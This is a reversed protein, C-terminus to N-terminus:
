VAFRFGAAYLPDNDDGVIVSQWASTTGQFLVSKLGTCETFAGAAIRSLSSPLSLETAARGAPCYLLTKGDATYLVGDYEMFNKNGSAVRVYALRRCGAFSAASLATVTTPIEVAGIISDKLAYPLIETVTDGTPSKPPILVCSAVCTGLGAVACTGDGNSRFRLGESYTPLVTVSGQVPKDAETGEGGSPPQEGEAKPAEDVPPTQPEEAAGSAGLAACGCIIACLLVLCGLMKWVKM